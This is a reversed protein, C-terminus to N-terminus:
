THFISLPLFASVVWNPKDVVESLKLDVAVSCLVYAENPSLQWERGLYAIMARVADRTAEMLDPGVGMTGYWPGVNTKPTIPGATLFQPAPLELGPMVTLRLATRSGTEIATVCVEGDGQAAHADGASFLAGDVEVPLWVSSGATLQKTDINGGTRTPPMTDFQGSQARATGLVGLFPDLPVQVGPRLEAARGNSLDWIKIFPGGFEDELIGLGPAIFTFGWDWPEVSLVDVQLADGAKAGRVHIPGTLAHGRFPPRRAVDDNTSNRNFYDDAGGRTELVVIDGSEVTLRPPISNDWAYHAASSDLQYTTL